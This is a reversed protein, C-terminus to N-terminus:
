ERPDSRTAWSRSQKAVPRYAAPRFGASDQDTGHDLRRLVDLIATLIVAALAADGPAPFIMGLNMVIAQLLGFLGGGAGVSTIAVRILEDQNLHNKLSNPAARFFDCVSRALDFVFRTFGLKRKL